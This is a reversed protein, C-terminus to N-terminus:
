RSLSNQKSELDLLMNKWLEVVQNRDRLELAEVDSKSYDFETKLEDISYKSFESTKIYPIKLIDFASSIVGNANLVMKKRLMLMLSLNGLAYSRKGDLVILDMSDIFDVYHVYDMSEEVFIAKTGLHNNAYEKVEKIYEKDGYSLIFYVMIKENKLHNLSNICKIHNNIPLGSHGILIKLEDENNKKSIHKKVIEYENTVYPIEYTPINGYRNFIDISDVKNNVGIACINKLKNNRIKNLILKIINRIIQGEVYDYGADSGWTRWITKQLLKNSISLLENTSKLGHVIIYQADEGYKKILNADSTDLIVNPYEKLLNYEDVKRFIFLHNEPNLENEEENILKVVSSDFIYSGFDFIHAIKYM